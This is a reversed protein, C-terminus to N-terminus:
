ISPDYIWYSIIHEEKDDLTINFFDPELTVLWKAMEIHNNYCVDNFYGGFTNCIDIDPDLKLLWKAVNLHGNECTHYFINNYEYHLNYCGVYKCMKLLCKATKLHGNVCAIRFADGYYIDLKHRIDFDFMHPNELLILKAIKTKGKECAHKFKKHIEKLGDLMEKEENKRQEELCQLQKKLEEIKSLLIKKKSNFEDIKSQEKDM